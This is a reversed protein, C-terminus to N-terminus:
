HGPHVPQSLLRLRQRHYIKFGAKEVDTRERYIESPTMDATSYPWAVMLLVIVTLIVLAGGIVVTPTMKM